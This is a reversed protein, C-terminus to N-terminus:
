VKTFRGPLRLVVFQACAGTFTGAVIGSVLLVPLYVVLGPTRTICIAVVIQGINHFVAGVVSCVWIQRQTVLRRMVLMSLFCLLGGGLSYFLTMMQGSFISGLIVRCLLIMLTPVPGLTFMSYVTIVNALGLKIGPIPAPNPIQAEITFIILAVSTLLAMNVLKKIKM